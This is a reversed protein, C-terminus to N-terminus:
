PDRVGSRQQRAVAAAAAADQGGSRLSESHQRRQLRDPAPDAREDAAELCPQRVAPQLAELRAPRMEVRQDRRGAGVDRRAGAPEHAVVAIGGVRDLAPGAVHDAGADLRRRQDRIGLELRLDLLEPEVPGVFGIGLAEGVEVAQLAAGRALHEDGALHEEPEPRAPRLVAERHRQLQLHERRLHQREIAVLDRGAAVDDPLADLEVRDAPADGVVEQAPVRAVHGIGPKGALDHADRGGLDHVDDIRDIGTLQAADRAERGADHLQEQEVLVVVGLEVPLLDRRHM